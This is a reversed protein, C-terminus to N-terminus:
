IWKNELISKVPNIGEDLFRVEIYVVVKNLLM